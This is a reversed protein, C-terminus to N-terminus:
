CEYWKESHMSQSFSCNKLTLVWGCGLVAVAWRERQGESWIQHRPMSLHPTPCSKSTSFVRVGYHTKSQNKQQGSAFLLPTSDGQAVLKDYGTTSETWTGLVHLQLPGASAMFTILIAAGCKQHSCLLLFAHLQIRLIKPWHPWILMIKAM